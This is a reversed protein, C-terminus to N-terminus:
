YVIVCQSQEPDHLPLVGRTRDKNGAAEIVSIEDLGYFRSHDPQNTAAFRRLVSENGHDHRSRCALTAHWGVQQATQKILDSLQLPVDKTRPADHERAECGTFYFNQAQQRVTQVSTLDRLFQGIRFACHLVNHVIDGRSELQTIARM